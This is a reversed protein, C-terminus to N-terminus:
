RTAPGDMPRHGGRQASPVCIFVIDRDRRGPAQLVRVVLPSPSGHLETSRMGNELLYLPGLLSRGSCM